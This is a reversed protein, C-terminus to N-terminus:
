IKLLEVPYARVSSTSLPLLGQVVYRPCHHQNSSASLSKPREDRFNSPKAGKRGRMGVPWLDQRRKDQQHRRLHPWHAESNSADMEKSAQSHAQRDPQYYTRESLMVILM